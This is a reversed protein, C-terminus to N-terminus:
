PPQFQTPQGLILLLALHLFCRTYPSDRSWLGLFLNRIHFYINTFENKNKNQRHFATVWFKYINNLFM